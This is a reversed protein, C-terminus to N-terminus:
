HLLVGPERIDRHKKQPTRSPLTAECDGHALAVMAFYWLRSPKFWLCKSRVTRSVRRGLRFHRCLQNRWHGGKKAEPCHPKVHDERETYRPRFRKRYLCWGYEILAWGLSKMKVKNSKSSESYLGM